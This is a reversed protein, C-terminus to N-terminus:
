GSILHVFLMDSVKGTEKECVYISGSFQGM